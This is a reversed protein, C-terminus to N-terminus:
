VHARGIENHYYLGTTDIRDVCWGAVNVLLCFPVWLPLMAAFLLNGSLRRTMTVGVWNLFM